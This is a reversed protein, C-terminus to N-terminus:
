PKYLCRLNKFLSHIGIGKFLCLITTGIASYNMMTQIFGGDMGILGTIYVVASFVFGLLAGAAPGYLAAGIIIPALALTIPFPGFRVFNGLLTLVVVVALLISIGTMRRIKDRSAANSM